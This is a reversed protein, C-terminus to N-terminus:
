GVDPFNDRSLRQAWALEALHSVPSRFDPDLGALLGVLSSQAKVWEGADLNTVFEALDRQREKVAELSPAEPLREARVTVISLLEELKRRQDLEQSHTLLERLRSAIEKAE